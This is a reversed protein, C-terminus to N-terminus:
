VSRATDTARNNDFSQLLGMRMWDPSSIIVSDMAKTAGAKTAAAVSPRSGRLVPTAV